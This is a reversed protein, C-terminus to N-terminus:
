LFRRIKFWITNPHWGAPLRAKMLYFFLVVGRSLLTASSYLVFIFYKESHKIGERKIKQVKEGM